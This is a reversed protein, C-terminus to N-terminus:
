TPSLLLVIQVRDHDSEFASRLEDVGRLERLAASPAAMSQAHTRPVSSALAVALTTAAFIRGTVSAVDDAEQSERSPARRYRQVPPM